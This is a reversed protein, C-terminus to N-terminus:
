GEPYVVKVREERVAIWNEVAYAGRYAHFGFQVVTKDCRGYWTQFWEYFREVGPIEAM